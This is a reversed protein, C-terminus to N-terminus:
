WALVAGDCRPETAGVLVGDADRWIIQGRGFGIPEAWRLDHGRAALARAMTEPFGRELLVTRGGEWRWRPADLAAQPNFGLDISGTLVQLHGQPQMFGGM